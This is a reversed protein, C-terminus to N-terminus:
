LRGIYVNCGAIRPKGCREWKTCIQAYRRDFIRRTETARKDYPRRVVDRIKVFVKYAGAM